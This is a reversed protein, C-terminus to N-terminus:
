GEYYLHQLLTDPSPLPSAEAFAQAEDVERAVRARLEADEGAPLLGQETLFRRLREIPDRRRWEEVEERSRYTRDDDDSSHPLYRYLKAEILTPGAGSRAREVAERTVAFAALVDMGDVVVGPFGYGQARDAINQIAMQKRQPTSIAYGNNECLFVVPLKHVGAFNLGEHFDGKSTAGDGFSVITVVKEGRLKSAYAIGAAHLIHTAVPSSGSVIKLPRSSWHMPMQRGGSCPDAARAFFGLMVDQPTMGLALVLATDRYYPVVFDVGRQIALASGVQTAEHGQCSVLFAAKGQRHLIVMREDLARALSMKYYIDRLNDQTLGLSVYDSARLTAPAEGVQRM